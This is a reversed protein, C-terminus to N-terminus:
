GTPPHWRRKREEPSSGGAPAVLSADDACESLVKAPGQEPGKDTGPAPNESAQEYLYEPALDAGTPWAITNLERDLRFQRFM